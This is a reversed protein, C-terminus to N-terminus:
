EITQGIRDWRIERLFAFPAFSGSDYSFYLFMVRGEIRWREIVGWYRSDQSATRHDGLLFYRNAPVLIPGWNDRSPTAASAPAGPLLHPLQWLMDPDHHDEVEGRWKVYPEDQPEGNIFLVADRMELTDGPMGILRKVLKMGEEHTPDFVVVDGRRPESYGPTTMETGPIRTGFALRNVMLFDDVLLTDEMSGSVIVFTQVLFARVVVLIVVTLLLTRGWEWAM